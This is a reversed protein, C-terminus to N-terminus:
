KINEDISEQKGSRISQILEEEKELKESIRQIQAVLGDFEPVSLKGERILQYTRNGLLTALKKKESVWYAGRAMVRAIRTAKTFWLEFAALNAKFEERNVGKPLQM